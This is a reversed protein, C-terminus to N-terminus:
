QLRASPHTLHPARDDRCLVGQEGMLGQQRGFAAERVQLAKGDVGDLRQALVKVGSATVQAEGLLDLAKAAALESRLAAVDKQAQRLEDLM